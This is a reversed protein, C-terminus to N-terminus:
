TPSSWKIFRLAKNPPPPTSNPKWGGRLLTMGKEKVARKEECVNACQFSCYDYIFSCFQFNAHRQPRSNCLQLLLM